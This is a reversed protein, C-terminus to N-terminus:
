TSSRAKGSSETGKNGADQVKAQNAKVARRSIRTADRSAEMRSALALAQELTEPGTDRIRQQIELDFLGDLFQGLAIRDRAAEPCDPFALYVLKEIQTAYDSLPEKDKQLRGRLQIHAVSQRYQM